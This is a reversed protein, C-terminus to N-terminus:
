AARTSGTSLLELASFRSWSSIHEQLMAMLRSRVDNVPEQNLLGLDTVVTRLEPFETVLPLWADQNAFCRALRRTQWDMARLGRLHYKNPKFRNLKWDQLYSDSDFKALEAVELSYRRLLCSTCFGCQAHNKVRIPFGDCSFTLPICRALIDQGASKLMAAKTEYISQNVIWCGDETISKIFQGAQRLFRPNLSRTNDTGIQSDDYPLNLAGWGNEYISLTPVHGSIATVAGLVIFLFGRTRRSPEQAYGDGGHLGFPVCVHWIPLGLNQRILKVQEQQRYRQRPNPSASVLVFKGARNMQMATATGALSDLGGSFLSISVTGDGIQEFLHQQTESARKAEKRVVFSLSWTDETLFSLLEELRSKIGHDNWHDPSRVSLFLKFHRSWGNTFYLDRLALRDAMHVAIAVDVLDALIPSLMSSFQDAIQEDNVFFSAPSGDLALAVDRNSHTWVVRDAGTFDFVFEAPRVKSNMSM